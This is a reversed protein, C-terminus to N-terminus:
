INIMQVAKQSNIKNMKQENQRAMVLCAVRASAQWWGKSSDYEWYISSDSVQAVSAACLKIVKLVM